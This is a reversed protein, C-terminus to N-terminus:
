NYIMPIYNNQTQGVGSGVQHFGTRGLGSYVKNM